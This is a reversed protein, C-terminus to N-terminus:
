EHEEITIEVIRVDDAYQRVHVSWDVASMKKSWWTAGKINSVLTNSTQNYYVTTGDINAKVVYYTQTNM